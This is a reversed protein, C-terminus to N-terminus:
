VHARGIKGTVQINAVIANNTVQLNTVTIGNATDSISSNGIVITSGSIYLNSWRHTSNGLSYTNNAVPILDGIIQSNFVVNSNFVTNTGGFTNNGTYSGSRSLTDSM